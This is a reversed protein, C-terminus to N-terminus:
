YGTINMVTGSGSLGFGIWLVNGVIFCVFSILVYKWVNARSSLIPPVAFPYAVALYSTHVGGAIFGMVWFVAAAFVLTNTRSLIIRYNAVFILFLAFQVVHYLYDFVNYLTFYKGVGIFWPFPGALARLFLLPLTLLRFFINSSSLLGLHRKDVAMSGIDHSLTYLCIAIVFFVIIFRFVKMSYSTIKRQQDFMVSFATILVIAAFYISRDAWALFAAPVSLLLCGFLSFEKGIYILVLALVVAALGVSDRLM